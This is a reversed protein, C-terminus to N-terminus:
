ASNIREGTSFTIKHPTEDATVPYAWAVRGQKNRYLFTLNKELDELIPSVRAIPLNLQQSIFDPSIPEGASPLERVVFNRVLHHEESMFGLRAQVLPVRGALGEEWVRRPITLIRRGKGILVEEEM